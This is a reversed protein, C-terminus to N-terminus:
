KESAKAKKATAVPISFLRTGDHAVITQNNNAFAVIQYPSVDLSEDDDLPWREGALNILSYRYGRKTGERPLAMAFLTSDASSVIPPYPVRMVADPLENSRSFQALDSQNPDGFSQVRIYSGTRSDAYAYDARTGIRVVDGDHGVFQLHDRRLGVVTRKEGTKLDFEFGSWREGLAELPHIRCLAFREDPSWILDFNREPEVTVEFRKAVNFHEDVLVLQRTDIEVGLFRGSSSSPLLYDFPTVQPKNVVANWILPPYDWVVVFNRDHVVHFGEFWKPEQPPSEITAITSVTGDSFRANHQYVSTREKTASMKSLMWFVGDSEPTWRLGKVKAFGINALRSREPGLTRYVQSPDGRFSRLEPTALMATVTNPLDALKSPPGGAISCMWIAGQSIYAISRGNPSVAVTLAKPKEWILDPDLLTAGAPLDGASTLAVATFAITIVLCVRYM